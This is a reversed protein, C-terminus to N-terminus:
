KLGYILRPTASVPGHMTAKGSLDIDEMQYWYTKRNKVNADTFEYSAGQTSSGKAPILAANIQVYNGDEKEARYLNFGATDIEAATSWQLIVKGTGFTAAFSSLTVLTAGASYRFLKNGTVAFIEHASIGGVDRIPTALLSCEVRAWATGDFRFMGNLGVAYVNDKSSGWVNFIDGSTGSFMATWASGDYHLITGAGGAAFIDSASSGWVAYLTKTTGSAMASWSTGDYHLITGNGGVAFVDTGSACWVGFLLQSTGSTMNEWISDPIGDNNGDGDYHIIRGSGGVVFVDTGSSGWIDSMSINPNQMDSWTSGNFHRISGSNPM